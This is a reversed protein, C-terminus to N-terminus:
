QSGSISPMSILELQMGVVVYDCHVFQSSVAERIKIWPLVVQDRLRFVCIAELDLQLRAPRIVEQLVRKLPNHLPAGHQRAITRLNDHVLQVTRIEGVPLALQFRVFGHRSRDGSGGLLPTFTPNARSIAVSSAARFVM